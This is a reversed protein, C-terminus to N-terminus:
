PAREKWKPDEAELIKELSDLRREMKEAVKNLDVAIAQVEGHLAPAEYKEHKRGRRGLFIIALIGLIFAFTTVLELFEFIKLAVSSDEM